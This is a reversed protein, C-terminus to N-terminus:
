KEINSFTTGQQAIYSYYVLAVGFFHRPLRCSHKISGSLGGDM